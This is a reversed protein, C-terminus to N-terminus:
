RITDSRDRTNTPWRVWRVVYSQFVHDSGLHRFQVQELKLTYGVTDVRKYM